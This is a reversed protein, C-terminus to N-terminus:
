NGTVNELMWKLWRENTLTEDHSYVQHSPYNATLWEKARQIQLAGNAVQTSDNSSSIDQSFVFWSGPRWGNAAIISAIENRCEYGSAGNYSVNFFEMGVANEVESKSVTNPYLDQYGQSGDEVWGCLGFWRSDGTQGPKPSVQAATYDPEWYRGPADDTWSVTYPIDNPVGNGRAEDCFVISYIDPMGQAEGEVDYRVHHQIKIESAIDLWTKRVIIPEEVFDDDTIELLDDADVQARMLEFIFKSENSYRMIGGIHSMITELYQQASRQSSFLISLGHGENIGAAESAASAIAPEDFWVEPLGAMTSLIYYCAHIANYDYLGIRNYPSWAFAPTKRMVFILAPARNYSGLLCDNMFAKAVGRYPSNNAAGIFNGIEAIRPQNTAGFSFTCTGMDKLTINGYGSGDDTLEGEWIAEDNKWVALLADVPGQALVVEWSLYYKYGVVVKSSGGGGGKGGSDQKEKVEKSRAGDYWTINGAMRETGLFDPILLGEEITPIDLDSMAPEGAQPIDPMNPDVMTGLGYGISAGMIINGALAWGAGGTYFGAIAGVVIGLGQWITFGGM